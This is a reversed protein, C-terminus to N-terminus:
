GRNSCIALLFDCTASQDAYTGSMSLGETTARSPGMRKSPDENEAQSSCLHSTHSLLNINYVFHTIIVRPRQPDNM